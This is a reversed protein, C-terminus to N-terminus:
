PIFCIKKFGQPLELDQSLKLIMGFVKFTLIFGQLNPVIKKVELQSSNMDCRM